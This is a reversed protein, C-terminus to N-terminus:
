GALGLLDKVSVCGPLGESIELVAQWQEGSQVAGKLYVAGMFVDIHVDAGATRPDLALRTALDTALAEDSILNNQLPLGNGAMTAWHQALNCIRNTRVRGNLMLGDGLAEIVIDSTTSRLVPDKALLDYVQWARREMGGGAASVKLM